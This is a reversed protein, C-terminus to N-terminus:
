TTRQGLDATQDRFRWQFKGAHRPKAASIQHCLSCDVGDAAKRGQNEDSAFPLHAFVQGLKGKAKAEYRTLPMHCISCEDEIHSVMQPHDLTERRVSAQWYPDRSSNAMISARWEFGISVDQGSATKLENHCALCRDSTQFLPESPKAAACALSVALMALSCARTTMAM